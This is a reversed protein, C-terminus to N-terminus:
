AGSDVFARLLEILGQKMQDLAARCREGRADDALVVRLAGKLAERAKEPDFQPAQRPAPQEGGLLGLLRKLGDMGPTGPGATLGSTSPQM